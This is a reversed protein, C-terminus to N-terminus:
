SLAKSPDFPLLTAVEEMIDLDHTLTDFSGDENWWRHCISKDIEVEGKMTYEIDHETITVIRGNRTRYRKGVELKM